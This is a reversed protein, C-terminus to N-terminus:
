KTYKVGLELRWFSTILFSKIKHADEAVYPTHDSCDNVSNNSGVNQESWVHMRLLTAIDSVSDQKIEHLFLNINNSSLSDLILEHLM